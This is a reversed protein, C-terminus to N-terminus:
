WKFTIQDYFQWFVDRTKERPTYDKKKNLYNKNEELKVQVNKKIKEKGDYFLFFKSEWKIKDLLLIKGEDSVGLYFNSKESFLSFSKETKNCKITINFDQSNSLILKQDESDVIEYSNSENKKITFKCEKSMDKTTNLGGNKDFYVYFDNCYLVVEKGDYNEEKEQYFFDFQCEENKDNDHFTIKDKIGLFIGSDAGRISFTNTNGVQRLYLIFDKTSSVILLRNYMDILNYENIGVMKIYFAYNESYKDDIKQYNNSDISLFNGKKTKIFVKKGDLKLHDVEYSDEENLKTASIKRIKREFGISNKNDSKVNIQNMKITDIKFESNGFNFFTENKEEKINKEIDKVITENYDVRKKIKIKVM